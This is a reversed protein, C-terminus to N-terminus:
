PNDVVYATYFCTKRMSSMESDLGTPELNGSYGHAVAWDFALRAIQRWLNTSSSPM